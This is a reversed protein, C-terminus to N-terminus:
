IFCEFWKELAFYVMIHVLSTENQKACYYAVLSAMIFGMGKFLNLFIVPCLNFGILYILYKNNDYTFIHVPITLAYIFYFFSYNLHYIIDLSASLTLIHVFIENNKKLVPTM